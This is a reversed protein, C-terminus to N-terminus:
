QNQHIIEDIKTVLADPDFPKEICPARTKSIFTRNKLFVIIRYFSLVLFITMLLWGIGVYNMLGEEFASIKQFRIMKPRLLEFIFYNGVFWLSSIIGLTTTLNRILSNRKM